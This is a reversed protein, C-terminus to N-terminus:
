IGEIDFPFFNNCDFIDAAAVDAAATICLGFYPEAIMPRYIGKRIFIYPYFRRRRAPCFRM